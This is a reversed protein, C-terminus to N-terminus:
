WHDEIEKKTLGEDRKNQNKQLRKTKILSKVKELTITTQRGYIMTDRFNEYGKPLSNLLLLALDKDDLTVEINELDDIMVNFEDIQDVLSKSESM